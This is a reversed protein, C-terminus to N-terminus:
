VTGKPTALALSKLLRLGEAFAPGSPDDSFITAFVMVKEGMYIFCATMTKYDDKVPPKDVLNVDTFTASYGIANASRLEKIFAKGEVSDAVFRQTADAVLMRLAERDNFRDDPVLLVTLLVADNSGSKPVYRLDKGVMSVEPSPAATDTAVWSDPLIFHMSKGGGLNINEARSGAALALSALVLLLKKM